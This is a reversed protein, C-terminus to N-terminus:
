QPWTKNMMLYIIVRRHSISVSFLSNILGVCGESTELFSESSVRDFSSECSVRPFVRCVGRLNCCPTHKGEMIPCDCNCVTMHKPDSWGTM